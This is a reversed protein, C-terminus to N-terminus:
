QGGKCRRIWIWCGGEVAQIGFPEWGDPITPEFTHDGAYIRKVEWKIKM